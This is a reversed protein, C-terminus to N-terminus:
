ALKHTKGHVQMPRTGKSEEPTYGQRGSLYGGAGKHGGSVRCIVSFPHFSTPAPLKPNSSNISVAAVRAESEPPWAFM